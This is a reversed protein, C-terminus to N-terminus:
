KDLQRVPNFDVGVHPKAYTGTLEVPMDAGAHKRKFLPNLPKLLISKLGTTTQSIEAETKLTGHLNVTGTLLNYTGNMHASAGPILFSLNTLMAVGDHLRVDSKINSSVNRRVEADQQGPIEGRSRRSLDNVRSQTDPHVFVGKAIAFQGRLDAERLFPRGEPVISVDAGFTIAGALPPTPDRVFLRLLDEVKGTRAEIRISTFRGKKGPHGVIDGSAVLTTDQLSAEVRRLSIDGHIANITASYRAQLPVRHNAEKVTFDPIEVTGGAEIKALEGSFKDSSSLMGAIGPFVSLDAGQFKYSGSVATQGPDSENWPGFRGQSTIEGHPIANTLAVSYYFPTNRSVSKLTLAHIEFKLPPRDGQRAIELLAGDAIIEGVRTRSQTASHAVLDDQSSAGSGRPPVQVRLGKLVIRAVYGPRLFLDVYRSQISITQVRVLPAEGPGSSRTLTVEHAECGPHPFIRDQFKGIQVTGPVIEHISDTLSQESFPWKLALLLVGGCLAAALILAVAIIWRPMRLKGAAVDTRLM